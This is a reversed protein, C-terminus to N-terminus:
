GSQSNWAQAGHSVSLLYRIWYIFIFCLERLFVFWPIINGFLEKINRLIRCKVHGIPIAIATFKWNRGCLILCTVLMTAPLKQKQWIYAEVDVWGHRVSLCWGSTVYKCHGACSLVGIFECTRCFEEAIFSWQTERAVESPCPKWPLMGVAELEVGVWGVGMEGCSECTIFSSVSTFIVGLFGKFLERAREPRLDQNQSPPVQSQSVERM